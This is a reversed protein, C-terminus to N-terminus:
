EERPRLSTRLITVPIAPLGIACETYRALSLDTVHFEGRPVNCNTVVRLLTLVYVHELVDFRALDPIDILHYICTVLM